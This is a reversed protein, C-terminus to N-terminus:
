GSQSPLRKRGAWQGTARGILIGLAAFLLVGAHLIVWPALPSGERILGAGLLIQFPAYGLGFVGWLLVPHKKVMVGPIVTCVFLLVLLPLIFTMGEGGALALGFAAFAVLFGGFFILLLGAVDRLRFNKKM